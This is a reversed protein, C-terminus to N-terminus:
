KVIELLEVEFVLAAGGPITPPQGRDGYAIDPPCVLRSKGGVKMTGVGETWCPIVRNLPFEAPEGRDVSSDFVTGDRLSGHYHVKVTDTAEPSDGSGAVLETIILGSDTKKAGELAAQRDLFAEAKGKEAEAAAASRKSYFAQVRERAQPIDILPPRSLVEDEIGLLVIALEEESLRFGELTRGLTTGLLYITEEDENKLKRDEALAASSSWLAALSLLLLLTFVTRLRAAAPRLHSLAIM